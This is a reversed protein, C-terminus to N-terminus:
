NNVEYKYVGKQLSIKVGIKRIKYKTTYNNNNNNDIKDFHCPRVFPCAQLRVRWVTLMCVIVNFLCLIVFSLCVLCCFM